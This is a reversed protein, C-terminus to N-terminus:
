RQGIGNLQAARSFARASGAPNDAQLWKGLLLWGTRNEPEKRLLSELQAIAKARNGALFFASAEFADPQLSASLLKASRLRDVALMAQPPRQTLLVIAETQLRQDNWSILLWAVAAAALLSLLLRAGLSTSGSSIVVRRHYAIM